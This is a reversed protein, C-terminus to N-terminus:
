QDLELILGIFRKVTDQKTNEVQVIIQLEWCKTIELLICSHTFNCFSQIFLAEVHNVAKIM